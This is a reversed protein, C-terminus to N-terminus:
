ESRGPVNGSRANKVVPGSVVKSPPQHCPAHPRPGALVRHPGYFALPIIQQSIAPPLPFSRHTAELFIQNLFGIPSNKFLRGNIRGFLYPSLKSPPQQGAKIRCYTM